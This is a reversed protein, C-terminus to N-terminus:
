LGLQGLHLYHVVCRECGFSAESSGLLLRLLVGDDLDNLLFPLTLHLAEVAFLVAGVGLVRLYLWSVFAEHLAAMSLDLCVLNQVDVAVGKFHQCTRLEVIDDLLQVQRVHAEVQDNVVGVKVLQALESLKLLQIQAM